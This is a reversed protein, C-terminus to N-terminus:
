LPIPVGFIILLRWIAVVAVIIYLVNKAQAPIRLMDIVIYALYIGLILILISVLFAM